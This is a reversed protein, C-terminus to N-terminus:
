DQDDEMIVKKLQMLQSYEPLLKFLERKLNVIDKWTNIKHTRRLENLRAISKELHIRRENMSDLHEDSVRVKGMPAVEILLVYLKDLEEEIEKLAGNRLAKRNRIETNIEEIIKKLLEIRQQFLDNVESASDKKDRPKKVSKKESNRLEPYNKNENM